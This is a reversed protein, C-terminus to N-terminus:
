KELDTVAGLSSTSVIRAYKALVGKKHKPLPKKWSKRRIELEQETLSVEIIQNLADVTIIDGEKILAINGGVAAEPAIHGVVLGYTGGSFRGDTILAVKEGLGQGVIASTPALMERMGPGGVPGENRIVVVDGAKIKNKLISELCSEESEFIRAPGSLVPNKVGSIKAVSGEIALNGKLIALHGKKYLPNDITRIVKQNNPPNDPIDKLLETITKGEINKCEGHILGANLLIKMVQPIGGANHLDVTVYKGSPKLDCIVPVKQRIKEFDDINLEVGATKAIALLHLVANTSGGVAMIVAIANEFAKRTMLDLPRIDKEIAKVLTRASKESSLEKEFDEAAMTSSHPLSLGLVEIVASMTNATFMGGCSGAGPICNKEVDNLRKKSIKGSTLQGVAEFASVVTLDEGDLKGPKITGGYIFISPINMRAIALMAGPMNKDCGGIACVGDMSQANCATEISDAIVERSVLSYHMGKTGMSIGDSVTITGFMQPMAGSARIADEARKSLKNLGINCPTITSYGNAVGIIPKIFDEDRFGVARLMSRNPSRQIGQTIASSRLKSM